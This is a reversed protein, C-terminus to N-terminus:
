SFAKHLNATDYYSRGSVPVGDKFRWVLVWDTDANNGNKKVNVGHTGEAVVTNGESTYHDVQWLRTDSSNNLLEFFHKFGDRGKHTGGYPVMSPDSPDTWTFDPSVNDLIYPINGKAFADYLAKVTETASM